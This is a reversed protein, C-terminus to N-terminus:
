TAFTLSSGAFSRSGAVEYAVSRESWSSPDARVSTIVGVPPRVVLPRYGRAGFQQSLFERINQRPQDGLVVEDRFAPPLYPCSSGTAM